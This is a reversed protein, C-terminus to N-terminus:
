RKVCIKCFIFILFTDDGQYVQPGIPSEMSHTQLCTGVGDMAMVKSTVTFGTVLRQKVGNNFRRTTTFPKFNIFTLLTQFTCEGDSIVNQQFNQFKGM